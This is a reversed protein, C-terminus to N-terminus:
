LDDKLAHHHCGISTAGFDLRIEPFFSVLSLNGIESQLHNDRLSKFDSIMLRYHPDIKSSVTSSAKERGIRGRKRM